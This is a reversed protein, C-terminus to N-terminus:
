GATRAATPLLDVETMTVARACTLCTMAAFFRKGCARHIPIVPSRYRARMWKDAWEHITIMIAYVDIGKPTLWYGAHGSPDRGRDFLGAATLRTLRDALINASIGIVTRFDNFRHIRFFACILIEIGWKDGFIDLSEALLPLGGPTESSIISRRHRSQKQPVRRLQARSVVPDVDRASTPRGCARCCVKLRLEAGCLRHLIRRAANSEPGWAQEWRAMQLIVDFLEEGMNTLLYEHRLPHMSYPVRLVIGSEELAQLRSTLLRTAIGTREALGGFRREGLLLTLILLLSWRDCIMDIAQRASVLVANIALRDNYAILPRTM